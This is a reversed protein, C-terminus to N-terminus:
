VITFQIDSLVDQAEHLYPLIDANRDAMNRQRSQRVFMTDNIVIGAYHLCIMFVMAFDDKAGHGKGSWTTKVEAFNLDTPAKAHWAFARMQEFWVGPLDNHLTVLRDSLRVAHTDIFLQSTRVMREKSFPTTRIGYERPEKTPESYVQCPQYKSLCNAWDRTAVNNNNNEVFFVIESDRYIELSRLLQMLEDVVAYERESM